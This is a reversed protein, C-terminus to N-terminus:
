ISYVMLSNGHRVYMRKNHIVLHAWHQKDGFPVRFSSVKKFAGASVDVLAVEGSEGYCYLKGDASVVNGKSLVKASHLVEGTKWDM